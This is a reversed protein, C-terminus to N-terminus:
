FNVLFKRTLRIIAVYLIELFNDREDSSVFLHPSIFYVSLIFYILWLAMTIRHWHFPNTEMFTCCLSNRCFDWQYKFFNDDILNQQPWLCYNSIFHFWFKSFYRYRVLSSLIIRFMFTITIANVGKHCNIKPVTRLHRYFVPPVATWLIFWSWGSSLM